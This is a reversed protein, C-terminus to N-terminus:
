SIQKIAERWGTKMIWLKHDSQYEVMFKRIYHLMSVWSTSRGKAKLNKKEQRKCAADILRNPVYETKM